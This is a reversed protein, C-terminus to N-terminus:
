GGPSVDGDASAAIRRGVPDWGPLAGGDLEVVPALDRTTSAVYLADFPGAALAGQRVVPIAQADCRALIRRLTTSELIRGDWPATHVVGDVVALVACTTGETFRGGADVLLMDDVGSRRVAAVWGLRSRHKVTRDVHPNDDHPGTICRVPRHRRGPEPATAWLVRRDDGTITIRVIAEDGVRDRLAQLERRLVAEDPIAIGVAAGSAALRALNVSWDHGAVVTDFVSFGRTFGVDTVPITAEALPMGRGDIIAWGEM